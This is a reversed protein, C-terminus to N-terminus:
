GAVRRQRQSLRNRPYALEAEEQTLEGLNLRRWLPCLFLAEARQLNEDSGKRLDFCREVIEPPSWRVFVNGVDFIISKIM